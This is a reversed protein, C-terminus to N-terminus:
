RQVKERKHLGLAVWLAIGAAQALATKAFVGASWNREYLFSAVMAATVLVLVLLTYFRKPRGTM